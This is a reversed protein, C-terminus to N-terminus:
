DTPQDIALETLRQELADTLAKFALTAAGFAKPGNLQAATLADKVSSYDTVKPLARRMADAALKTTYQFADREGDAGVAVGKFFELLGVPSTVISNEAVRILLDKFDRMGSQNRLELMLVRIDDLDMRAIGAEHEKLAQEFARFLLLENRHTAAINQAVIIAPDLPEGREHFIQVIFARREPDNTGSSYIQRLRSLDYRRFDILDSSALRMLEFQPPESRIRTDRVARSLASKEVLEDLRNIQRAAYLAKQQTNRNAIGIAQLLAAILILDVMVRALFVAHMGNPWMPQISDNGPGLKYIDAWDVIPLAKALEFGFYGLWIGFNNRADVIQNPANSYEFLNYNTGQHAQMMGIPLLVLVFIFGLLTEDRFDERFGVRQPALPSFKTASAMNRDEEVWSWLRSLSLAVILGIVVPILGMPPPLYWALLALCILTSGLIGYRSRTKLHDAGAVHSGLRVLGTDILDYFDALFRLRPATRNLSKALARLPPFRAIWDLFVIIAFLAIVFVFIAIGLGSGLGQPEGFSGLYFAGGALFFVVATSLVAGLSEANRFNQIEDEVAGTSQGLAVTQQRATREAAKRNRARHFAFLGANWVRPIFALALFAFFALRQPAQSLMKSGLLTDAMALATLVALLLTTLVPLLIRPGSAVTEEPDLSLLLLPLWLVTSAALYYWRSADNIFTPMGVVPTLLPIALALGACIAWLTLWGGRTGFLWASLKPREIVGGDSPGIPGAGDAM